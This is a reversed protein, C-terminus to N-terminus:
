VGKYNNKKALRSYFEYERPMTKIYLEQLTKLAQKAMDIVDETGNGELLLTTINDWQDKGYHHNLTWMLTGDYKALYVSFVGEKYFVLDIAEDLEAIWKPNKNFFLYNKVLMENAITSEYTITIPSDVQVQNTVLNKDTKKM